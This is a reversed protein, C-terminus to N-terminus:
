DPYEAKYQEWMMQNIVKEAEAMSSKPIEGKVLVKDEPGLNTSFKRFKKGNKDIWYSRLVIYKVGSAKHLNYSKLLEHEILLRVKSIRNKHAEILNYIGLPSIPRGSSDRLESQDHIDARFKEKLKELEIFLYKKAGDKKVDESFGDNDLWEGFDDNPLLTSDLLLFLGMTKYNIDFNSPVVPLVLNKVM